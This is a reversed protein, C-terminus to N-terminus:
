LTGWVSRFTVTFTGTVAASDSSSFSLSSTGVPLGFWSSGTIIANQRSVGNLLITKAAMDIVLVDGIALTLNLAVFQGAANQFRPNTLPGNITVVFPAAFNGVNILSASGGTSAGFVFPATAPFTLGSSPTPLGVPGITQLISDYVFPDAATMQIKAEIKNYSFWPDLPMPFATPRCTIQRASVWGPLLIQLQLQMTPDSILTYAAALQARIVEMAVSPRVILYDLGFVREDFVDLGAYSGHDRAKAIDNQRTPPSGLLGDIGLLQVDTGPGTILGNYSLQYNLVM